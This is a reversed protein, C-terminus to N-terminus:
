QRLAGCKFWANMIQVWMIRMQLRNRCAQNGSAFVLRAPLQQGRADMAPQAQVM